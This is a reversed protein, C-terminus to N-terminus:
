CVCTHKTCHTHVDTCVHVYVDKERWIHTPTHARTHMSVQLVSKERHEQLNGSLTTGERWRYETSCKMRGM